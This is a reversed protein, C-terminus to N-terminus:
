PSTRVLVIVPLLVMVLLFVSISGVVEIGLVNLVTAVVVM